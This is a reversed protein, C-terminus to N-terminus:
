SRRRVGFLGLMGAAMLALSGPEPVGPPPDIRAQVTGTVYQLKLYDNGEGIRRSNINNSTPSALPNFAGLLWYSSSVAENSTNAGTNVQKASTGVNAYNGISTWGSNVNALDSWLKGDLTPKGSGSYALVSIDSDSSTWGFKVTELKVLAGGFDVLVMEYRENNDIAHEPQRYEATDCPATGCADKNYVGLGGGWLTLDQSELGQNNAPSSNSDKTNAWAVASATVPTPDGTGAVTGNAALTWTTSANVTGALGAMALVLILGLARKMPNVTM